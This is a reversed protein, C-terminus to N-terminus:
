ISNHPINNFNISLKSFFSIYMVDPISTIFGHRGYYGHPLTQHTYGLLKYRLDAVWIPRM